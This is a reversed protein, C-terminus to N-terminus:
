AVRAQIKARGSMGYLQGVAIRKRVEEGVRLRGKLKEDKEEEESVPDALGRKVLGAVLKGVSAKNHTGFLAAIRPVATKSEVDERVLDLM